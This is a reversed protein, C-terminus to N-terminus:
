AEISGQRIKHALLPHRGEAHEKVCVAAQKLIQEKVQEPHPLGDFVALETLAGATEVRLAGFGLLTAIIGETEVTVNQENELHITIVERHFLLRQQVFIVRQTTVIIMDLIYNTWITSLWAICSLLWVSSFLVWFSSEFLTGPLIGSGVFFGVALFPLLLAILPSFAEQLFLFWHKRSISLRQEGPRMRLEPIM